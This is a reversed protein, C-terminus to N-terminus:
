GEVAQKLMELFDLYQSRIIQKGNM